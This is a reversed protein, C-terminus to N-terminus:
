KVLIRIAVAPLNQQSLVASASGRSPVTITRLTGQNNSGTSADARILLIVEAGSTAQPSVQFRATMELVQGEPWNDIYKEALSTTLPTKETGGGDLFFSSEEGKQYLRGTTSIMTAPGSQVEMAVSGRYKEPRGTTMEVAAAVLVQDGARVEMPVENTTRLFLSPMGPTDESRWSSKQHRPLSMSEEPLAQPPEEFKDAEKSEETGTPIGSNEERPQNTLSAPETISFEGGSVPIPEQRPPFIGLSVPAAVAAVGVIVWFIPVMIKKSSSSTQSTPAVPQYSSSSPTNVRVPPPGSSTPQPAVKQRLQQTLRPDGLKLASCWVNVCWVAADESMGQDQNLSVAVQDASEELRHRNAKLTQPARHRASQVLLNIERKRKPAKDSLVSYLLKPNEVVGEGIQALVSELEDFREM